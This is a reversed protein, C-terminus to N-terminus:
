LSSKELYISIAISMDMVNMAQRRMKNHVPMPCYIKSILKSHREFKM